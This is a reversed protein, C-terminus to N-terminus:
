MKVSSQCWIWSIKSHWTARATQHSCSVYGSVLPISRCCYFSKFFLLMSIAQECDNMQEMCGLAWFQLGVHLSRSLTFVMCLSIWWACDTVSITCLFSTWRCPKFILMNLSCTSCLGPTVKLYSHASYLVCIRSTPELWSLLCTSWMRTSFTIAGPHLGLDCGVQDFTAIVIM